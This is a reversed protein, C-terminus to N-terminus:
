NLIQGLLQSDLQHEKGRIRRVEIQDFSQPLKQFLTRQIPFEMLGELGEAVRDLIPKFVDIARVFVTRLGRPAIHRGEGSKGLEGGSEM